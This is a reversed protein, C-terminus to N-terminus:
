TGKKNERYKVFVVYDFVPHEGNPFSRHKKELRHYNATGIGDEPLVWDGHFPHLCRFTVNIRTEYSYIDPPLRHCWFENTLPGMTLASGNQLLTSLVPWSETRGRNGPVYPRFEFHREAGLSLSIIPSLPVVGEINDAHWTIEDKGNRYINVLAYNPQFQNKQNQIVKNRLSLLLQSGEGLTDWPRGSTWSPCITFDSFAFKERTDGETLTKNEVSLLLNMLPKIDQEEMFNPQYQLDLTPFISLVTSLDTKTTSGDKELIEWESM